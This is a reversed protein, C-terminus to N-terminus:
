AQVTNDTRVPGPEGGGRGRRRRQAGLRTAPTGFDPEGDGLSGLIDGIYNDASVGAAFREEWGGVIGQVVAVGAAYMNRTAVDRAPQLGLFEGVATGAPPRDFNAGVRMLVVRSFDVLRAATAAGRALAALVANDEQASMCYAASGNTWVAATRDFARALADGVFYVDSTTVDCRLLGPSAAAASGSPYRARLAAAEEGGGDDLTAAAALEYAADRLNANLEYVETGYVVRPYAGPRDSGLAVYGSAWDAPAERPDVEYQLGVQVAYRALAVSGLTARGPHAGAIGGLLLYASRLDLLPSLLLATASAAANIEGAGVTAHCVSTTATCYVSPFLPSLGPPSVQVASLNGLGSRHFNDHWADAEPAFMSIIMVKPKLVDATIVVSLAIAMAALQTLFQM